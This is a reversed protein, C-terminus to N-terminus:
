PKEGEASTTSLATRAIERSEKNDNHWGDIEVLAERLKAERALAAALPHSACSLIHKQVEERTQMVLGCFVCFTRSQGNLVGEMMLNLNARAEDLERTLTTEMEHAKERAASQEALKVIARIAVVRDPEYGTPENGEPWLEQDIASLTHELDDLAERLKAERNRLLCIEDGAQDVVKRAEDRERVLVEGTTAECPKDCRTCLMPVSHKFNIRAGCCASLQDQWDPPAGTMAQEKAARRALFASDEEYQSQMKAALETKNTM